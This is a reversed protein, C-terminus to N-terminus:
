RFKVATAYATVLIMGTNKSSGSTIIEFDMNLGIIADAGQGEAEKELKDLAENRANAIVKEYNRVRGGVMDQISAIFDKVINAGYIIEAHVTGTIEFRKNPITNTTTVIM